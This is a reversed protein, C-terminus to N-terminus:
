LTFGLQKKILQAEEMKLEGPDSAKNLTIVEVRKVLPAFISGLRKAARKEKNGKDFLIFLNRIKKRKILIIQNRTHVLGLISITNDGMKWVDIPGEVIIADCGATLTDYNYICEKLDIISEHITAHKYRLEQQNTIDRSTFSVLKRNIYIPIIIRFKYEGVTNTSLLKYKKIIKKPNDFGRNKLYKIHSKPFEKKSEPPLIVSKSTLTSSASSEFPPLYGAGLSLTKYIKSSEEWSYDTLKQILKKASHHGCRWCNVKLNSLKIGCHNSHDDCFPCQINVWGPSVNKGGIWFDIGNDELFEIIDM